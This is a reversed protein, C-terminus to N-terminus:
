GTPERLLRATAVHQHRAPARRPRPNKPGRKHKPYASLDIQRAWKVLARALERQRWTQFPQWEVAPLAIMMGRYTGHIEDTLYYNSVEEHVKDEGHAARLAGKVAALINYCAAAVCFGFLAAPPYGLTNLECRLHTTLEQFATELTWRRSYLTAICVADAVSPPLNSLIYLEKDGNRTTQNLRISIRRAIREQGTKPDTLVVEQEYVRGSRCRGCARKQGQVRWVLHGAHQRIVFYSDRQWLGFLFASICFHRDAIWVHRAQVTDLLPELLTCEQRHGDECPIVDAITMTQPNLVALALGPLAGAGLRRLSELRHETGGLHNGDLIWCRYGPLLATCEGGMDQILTTTEQNTHRVLARSTEPEVHNLKDYLARVTVPIQKKRATYAAGVSPHVRCVILSMLDVTTSFLLERTYQRKAATEFVRDLKDPAFINELLVRSMVCIPSERLFRELIEKMIM